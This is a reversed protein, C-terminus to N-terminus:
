KTDEEVEEENDKNDIREKLKHFISNSNHIDGFESFGMFHFPNNYQNLFINHQENYKKNDEKSNKQNAKERNTPIISNDNSAILDKSESKENNINIGKNDSDDKEENNKEINNYDRNYNYNNTIRNNIKDNNSYFISNMINSNTVNPKPLGYKKELSDKKSRENNHNSLDNSNKILDFEYGFYGLNDENNVSEERETDITKQIINRFSIGRSFKKLMNNYKVKKKKAEYLAFGRQILSKSFNQRTKYYVEMLNINNINKLIAEDIVNIYGKEKLKFIFHKMGEKKTMPNSREYDNYFNFYVDEYNKDNKLESEKIGIFDFCFIQNYPILILVGFLNINVMPWIDNENNEKIFIYNGIGLMFFNIVFYNTYFDCLNSNLMEPRKYMYIFNYKELFYGLIFGFLSILIGLPFIPIYLFTMLLTKAIYSYKYSIKMNPLEYLHNLQNQTCYHIKTKELICQILRKFFYKFNLTWMIPTLFSNTLFMIFMNTVLLDYDGEISIYNSMLPLVSSTIFTFLTLKISFSLYYNTMTIHNEMKTLTELCIQFIVNILSIVITIILSIFYKILFNNEAKFKKQLITLRSIFIFSIGIIIISIFYISFTRCLREYSTTQLNEFQIEDPEPAVEAVINRKLFFRRTKKRNIFCRCFYYKLNKFSIFLFIIFNKPYPKLFKEQEKKNNFTVFIVGAFNDITLYKSQEILLNLGNELKIEQNKLDSLKICKEFHKCECLNFGFISIPYIFYRRNDGKLQLRENKMKQKPDHKIKIIKSKVNQIQDENKKLDSIKYCININNINFKEGNISVCIRNKIFAYFGELINIEKDHPFEELGLEEIERLDLLDSNIIYKDQEKSITGEKILSNSNKKTENIKKRIFYNIKHIKRWFIEFASHLNSIMVTYDGPTTVLMDNRKNINYILIIYFLSIFFLTILCLFYIFSYNVVIKTININNSEISNNHLLRYQKLNIGNFRLAWDSGNIFYKSIGKVGIFNVCEHFTFTFNNSGNEYIKYCFDKIQNTYNNTLISTPISITISVFVLIFLSFRFYSFYLSIGTGCQIFEDTNECFNFKEIYGKQEVPLSCCPCFKTSQDFDRIKKLPRNADCHLKAQEITGLGDINFDTEYKIKKNSKGKRLKTIWSKIPKNKEENKPNKNDNKINDNCLNDIEIKDKSSM